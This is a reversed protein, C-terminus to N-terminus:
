FRAYFNWTPEWDDMKEFYRDENSRNTIRRVATVLPNRGQFDRKLGVDLEKYHRHTRVFGLVRKVARYGCDNFAVIGGVKLLKDCYFFDLLAYDFTHWGDIYAFDIKQQRGILLPLATYDPAEILEHIDGGGIREVNLRGIRKFMSSQVPDVSILRGRGIDRLATVITMSSLGYAMGVEVVLDPKRALITKYLAEAYEPIIGGGGLGTPTGDADRVQRTTYIEQLLPCPVNVM